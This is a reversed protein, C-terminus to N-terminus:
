VHGTRLTRGGATAPWGVGAPAEPRDGRRAPVGWVVRGWNSAQLVSPLLRCWFQNAFIGIITYAPQTQKGRIRPHDHAASPASPAPAPSNSRPRLNRPSSQPRLRKCRSDLRVRAPRVASLVRAPRFGLRVRVCCPASRVWRPPASRVRVCRFASHVRACRLVQRVSRPTSGVWACDFVMRVRARRLVSRVRACRPASRVWACCFAMRVRSIACRLPNARRIRTDSVGATRKGAPTRPGPLDPPTRQVPLLTFIEVSTRVIDHLRTVECTEMEQYAVKFLAPRPTRSLSRRTDM